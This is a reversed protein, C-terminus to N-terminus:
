GITAPFFNLDVFAYEVSGASDATVRMRVLDGKLVPILGFGYRYDAILVGTGVGTGVWTAGEDRSFFPTFFIGPRRVRIALGCSIFGDAPIQINTGYTHSTTAYTPFFSPNIPIPQLPSSLFIHGPYDINLRPQPAPKLPVFRLFGHYIRSTSAASSFLALRVADGKKVPVTFTVRDGGVANTLTAYLDTLISNVQICGWVSNAVAGSIFWHVILFGNDPAYVTNGYLTTNIGAGLNPFFQVSDNVGSNLASM